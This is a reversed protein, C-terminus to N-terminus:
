VNAIRELYSNYNSKIDKLCDGGFKELFANSLTYALMSEGIVGAAPVICVDAREKQAPAKEKTNIDVSKLPSSLTPIPKLYIRTVIDEGNSMGGEIGGARNTSRYFGKKKSYFIEDQVKSGFKAANKIGEGIEVGKVAPISMMASAICADLRRDFHAHSGIGTCVGQAIIESVGGLSNGKRKAEDIIKIMQKEMESNTCRLPSDEIKDLSKMPKKISIKGVSITHSYIHIGFEALFLKFIAGAAVRTATERASARELIDRIDTRGYKFVGPLDAHGPRPSFITKDTSGEAIKMIDKWNEFDKNKIQILVPSGVTEGFRVGSLIEAKDSEIKMRDGRGYGKQRRSLENNIYKAKIKLGAPIGEIIVSLAKGHSEGSTLLRIM